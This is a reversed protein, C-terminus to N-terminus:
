GFTFSYVEVGVPVDLVVVGERPDGPAVVAYSRPTGGVEITSRQGDREVQVTGEGAAVIRM